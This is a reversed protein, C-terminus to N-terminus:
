ISKSKSKSKIADAYVEAYTVVKNEQWDMIKCFERPVKFRSEDFLKGDRERNISSVVKKLDMTPVVYPTCGTLGDMQWFNWSIVECITKIREFDDINLCDLDLRWISTKSKIKSQKEGKAIADTLNYEKLNDIFTFLVAERTLLLNDGQWEFGYTHKFANIIWETWVEKSEGSGPGVFANVVRLKRDLIGIRDCVPIERETVVDYRSVLYPGEGCCMEIKDELVYQKWDKGTKEFVRRLSALSLTRWTQGSVKNFPSGSAPIAKDYFWLTDVANLQENCAWSPTFVEARKKTRLKKEEESKRVRPRLVLGNEGIIDSLKIPSKEKHGIDTAWLINKGTTHDKLLISLLERPIRDELIDVNDRLIISNAM